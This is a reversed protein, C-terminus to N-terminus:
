EGALAIWYRSVPKGSYKSIVENELVGGNKQIVRASAINDSDCTVLVRKLGLSGTKELTLALIQTGYGKCRESPRIDYGIHGGELELDQTLFHRLRSTGLIDVEERLLWFTTQPVYGLPLGIGQAMMQLNHVYRGFDDKALHAVDQYREEGAAQFDSVMARFADAYKKNPEVLKLKSENAAMVEGESNRANM